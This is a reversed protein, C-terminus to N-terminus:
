EFIREKEIEKESEIKSKKKEQKEAVCIFMPNSREFRVLICEFDLTKKIFFGEFFTM